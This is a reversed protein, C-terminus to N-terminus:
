LEPVVKNAGHYSMALLTGGDTMLPEALRAMRVFSHCSIDMAVKFGESSSDLLRGQLDEKPAFAISHLAIDLSGWTDHVQQFVAELEGNRGVDCPAFIAAGLEKALPEVYPRAKENLYTVALDAGLQCFVRACGYAISHENAIGIVLARKGHLIKSQAAVKTLESPQDNM